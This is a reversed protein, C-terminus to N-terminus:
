DRIKEANRIAIERTLATIAREMAWHREKIHAIFWMTTLALGYLILDAGRGIGLAHAIASTSSPFAILVASTLWILFWLARFSPRSKGRFLSIVSLLLCGPIAVIQFYIV